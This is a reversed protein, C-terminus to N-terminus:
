EIVTNNRPLREGGLGRSHIDLYSTGPSFSNRLRVFKYHCYSLPANLNHLYTIIAMDIGDKLNEEQIAGRSIGM